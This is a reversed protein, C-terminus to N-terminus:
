LKCISHKPAVLDWDLCRWRRTSQGIDTSTSWRSWFLAATPSTTISFFFTSRLLGKLRQGVSYLLSDMKEPVM